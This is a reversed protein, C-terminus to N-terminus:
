SRDKAVKRRLYRQWGVDGMAIPDEGNCENNKVATLLEQRFEENSLCEALIQEVTAMLWDRSGKSVVDMVIFSEWDAIEVDVQALRHQLVTAGEPIEEVFRKNELESARRNHKAVEALLM